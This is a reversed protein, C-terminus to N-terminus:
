SGAPMALLVPRTGAPPIQELLKRYRRALALYAQRRDRAKAWSAVLYCRDIRCTLFDRTWFSRM